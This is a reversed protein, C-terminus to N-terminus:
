KKKIKIDIMELIDEDDMEQKESLPITTSKVSKNKKKDSIPITSKFPKIIKPPKTKEEEDEETETEDSLNNPQKNIELEKLKQKLLIIENNREELQKTLTSVKENLEETKGFKYEIGRDLENCDVIECFKIKIYCGREGNKRLNKNYEYEAQRLKEKIAGDFQQKAIISKPNILKFNDYIEEITLHDYENNTKQLFKEIYNKILDNSDIIGAKTEKFNEPIEYRKGKHYEYAYECIMVVFANLANEDEKLETLLNTNALYIHKQNNVKEEEKTFHSMHEYSTIRREVGSDIKIRPFENMIVCFLANIIITNLGEQFLTTTTIKGECLQKFKSDDIKGKMENIYYIRVFPNSMLMNIIRDAKQNNICLTDEKLQLIMKDFALELIEMITSKASSGIGLLFLNRQSKPSIGLMAEALMEMIYDFDQQLPYIQRLIKSITKKGKKQKNEDSLFSKINRMICYSVYDERKRQKFENTKMDIYGDKFHIEYLRPNNFYEQNIMLQTKILNLTKNGINLRKNKITNQQIQSLKILSTDCYNIIYTTLFDDINMDCSLKYHIKFDDNFIYIQNGVVSITNSLFKVLINCIDTHTGTNTYLEMVDEYSLYKKLKKNIFDKIFDFKVPQKEEELNEVIKIPM